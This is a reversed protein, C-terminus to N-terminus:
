LLSHLMVRPTLGANQHQFPHACTSEPGPRQGFNQSGPIRAPTIMRFNGAATLTHKDQLGGLAGKSESGGGM